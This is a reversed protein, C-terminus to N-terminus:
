GFLRRRYRYGVAALAALAVLLGIALGADGDALSAGSVTTVVISPARGLVAIAVLRSIRLDTLGAAFCVADDPPGPILFVLFLAPTGAREVFADFRDVTEPPLAREVFPRGYRKALWFVVTSGIGLGLVAYVSGAVPGFLYGGVFGVAQGPIPALVVQAAVLLVFVVPALPGFGAVFERLARGDFLTLLDTRALVVGAIVAAVLAAGVVLRRHATRHDLPTPESDTGVPGAAEPDRHRATEPGAEGDDTM